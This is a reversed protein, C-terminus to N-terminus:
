YGDGIRRLNKENKRVYEEFAGRADLGNLIGIEVVFHLLDAWEEAVKARDVIFTRKRWPKWNVCQLLEGLEVFAALVAERMVDAVPRDYLGYRRVLEAQRAWIEELMDSM